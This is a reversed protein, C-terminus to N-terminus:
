PKNSLRKLEEFWNLVVHIERAPPTDLGRILVFRRGDATVDYSLGSVNLYNGEFLLRPRSADFTPQTSTTVVMWRQGNRYFLEKGNRSWIPEEGGDISILHRIGVAPYTTVYVDSKGSEDSVYALRTGDPSIAPQGENFASKLLPRPTGESEGFLWIDSRTTPEVQTYALVRGDPSWSYPIQNGTSSGLRSPEGSGDAKQRFINWVGDALASFTIWEGDPTWLPHGSSGTANLRTRTGRALDHVWLETTAESVIIALKDGSPSLKFAHYNSVGFGPM